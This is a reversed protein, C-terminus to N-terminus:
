HLFSMGWAAPSILNLHSLLTEMIEGNIWGIGKIFNLVYQVYCSDQHGYVHWLRIRPIITLELVM